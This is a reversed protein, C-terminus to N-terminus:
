NFYSEHRIYVSMELMVIALDIQVWCEIAYKWMSEVIQQSALVPKDRNWPNKM